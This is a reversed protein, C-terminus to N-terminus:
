FVHSKQCQCPLSLLEVADSEIKNALIQKGKKQKRKEELKQRNTQKQHLCLPEMLQTRLQKVQKRQKM